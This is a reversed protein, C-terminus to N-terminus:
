RSRALWYLNTEVHVIEDEVGGAGGFFLEEFCREVAVDGYIEHAVGIEEKTGGEVPEAVVVTM